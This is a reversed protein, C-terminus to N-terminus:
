KPGRLPVGNAVVYFAVDDVDICALEGLRDIPGSYLIPAQNQQIPVGLYTLKRVNATTGNAEVFYLTGNPDLRLGRVEQLGTWAVASASPSTYVTITSGAAVYVTDKGPHTAIARANPAAIQGLLVGNGDGFQLKASGTNPQLISVWVSAGVAIPGTSTIAVKAFKNPCAVYSVGGEVYTYCRVGVSSRGIFDYHNPTPLTATAGGVPPTAASYDHYFSANASAGILSLGAGSAVFGPTTLADIKNYNSAGARPVWYASGSTNNGATWITVPGDTAICANAASPVQNSLQCLGGVCTGTCVLGCAGCNQPDNKLNVCPGGCTFCSDTVGLDPAGVDPIKGDGVGIEPVNTDLTADRGADIVPPPTTCGNPDTCDPVIGRCEGAVCTQSPDPCTVGACALSLHVPLRLSTYPVFRLVRKTVICNGPNKPDCDASRVIPLAPDSRSAVAALIAVQDDDTNSPVIALTGVKGGNCDTAVISTSGTVDITAPNGVRVLVGGGLAVDACSVDTTIELTIQTPERCSAAVVACGVAGGALGLRLWHM